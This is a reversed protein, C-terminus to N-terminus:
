EGTLYEGVRSYIDPSEIRELVLNLWGIIVGRPKGTTHDHDLCKSNLRNDKFGAGTIECHTANYYRNWWYEFDEESDFVVGRRRWDRRTYSKQYRKPNQENWKKNIVVYRCSNCMKRYSDGQLFLNLPKVEKCNSCLRQRPTNNNNLLSEWTDM